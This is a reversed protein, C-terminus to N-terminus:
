FIQERSQFHHQQFNEWQFNRYLWTLISESYNCFSSSFFSQLMQLLYELCSQETNVNVDYGWDGNEELCAMQM